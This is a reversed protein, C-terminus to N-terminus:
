RIIEILKLRYVLPSNPPVLGEIGKEGFSLSSPILAEYEDGVEMMDMVLALGPTVQGPMSKNFEFLTSSGATSYVKKGGLLECEMDVRYISNKIGKIGSGSKVAAKVFIGAKYEFRTETSFLYQVLRISEETDLPMVGKEIGRIYESDRCDLLQIKTKSDYEGIKENLQILDGIGIHYLINQIKDQENPHIIKVKIENEDELEILLADEPEPSESTKGFRIMEYKEPSESCSVLVIILFLFLTRM